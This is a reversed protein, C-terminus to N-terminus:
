VNEMTQFINDGYYELIDRGHLSYLIPMSYSILAIIHDHELLLIVICFLEYISYM